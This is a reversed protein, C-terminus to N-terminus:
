PRTARKRNRYVGAVVLTCTILLCSVIWAPVQSQEISTTSGGVSHSEYVATYVSRGPLTVTKIRSTDGDESWHSWSYFNYTAPMEVIYTGELLRNFYPTTESIGNITFPIGSIPSSAITLEYRPFEVDFVVENSAGMNGSTDNAYVTVSHTGELLSSLTTNGSITVNGEGDPAYGIWATPENITFILPITSSSYTTAEPSVVLIEPPTTDAVFTITNSTCYSESSM